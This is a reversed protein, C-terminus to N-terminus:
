ARDKIMAHVQIRVREASEALDAIDNELSMLVRDTFAEKDDADIRRHDEM